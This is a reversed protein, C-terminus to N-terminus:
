QGGRGTVTFAKSKSDESSTQLTPRQYDVSTESSCIAEMKLTSFYGSCLFLRIAPPFCFKDKSGRSAPSTGGFRGNIKLPSFSM